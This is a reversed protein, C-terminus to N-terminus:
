DHIAPNGDLRLLRQKANEETPVHVCHLSSHGGHLPYGSDRRGWARLFLIASVFHRQESPAQSRETWFLTASWPPIVGHMRLLNIIEVASVNKFTVVLYMHTQSPERLTAILKNFRYEHNWLIDVLKDVQNFPPSYQVDILQSETLHIFSQKKVSFEVLTSMRFKESHLIRPLRESPNKLDNEDFFEVQFPACLWPPRQDHSSAHIPRTFQSTIYRNCGFHIKQTQKM